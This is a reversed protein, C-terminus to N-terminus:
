VSPGVLHSLTEGSILKEIVIIKEIFSCMLKCEWDLDIGEFGYQRTFDVM